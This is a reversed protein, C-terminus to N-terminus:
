FHFFTLYHSLSYIASDRLLLFPRYMPITGPCNKCIDFMIARMFANSIAISISRNIITSQEPSSAQLYQMTAPFSRRAPYSSEPSSVTLIFPMFDCVKSLPPSCRLQSAVVLPSLPPKCVEV